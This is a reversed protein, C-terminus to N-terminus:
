KEKDKKSSGQKSADEEAFDREAFDKSWIHDPDEPYRGLYLGHTQYGLLRQISEPYSKVMDMPVTLYQNVEQRLWGLAYTSILGMRPSTSRNEGGGHLTSGRYLLCSGKSMARQQIESQKPNRGEIWRHSGPVVQTAGNEETFDTLAWMVGVQWEVGQIRLPYITDDRHLVQAAEGPLIEIGTTSSIQFNECFPSLLQDIVAMVKPEGILDASTTSKALITSQRLTNYGNFDNEAYTGDKDFHLRLEAAVQDCLRANALNEIIVAGTTTLQQAIESISASSDLSPITM